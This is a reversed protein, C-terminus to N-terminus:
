GVQNTQTEDQQEEGNNRVTLWAQCLSNLSESLQLTLLDDDIFKRYEFVNFGYLELLYFDNGEHAFVHQQPCLRDMKSYHANKYSASDRM